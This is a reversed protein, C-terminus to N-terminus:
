TKKTKVYKKRMVSLFKIKGAGEKILIVKILQQKGDLKIEHQLSWTVVLPNTNKITKIATKANEVVQPIAPVLASRYYRQSYSRPRRRNYLLHQLGDSTFHISEQLAPCFCPKQKYLNYLKKQKEIFDEQAM